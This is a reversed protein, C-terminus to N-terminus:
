EAALAALGSGEPGCASVTSSVAMNELNIAANTDRDHHAGCDPCDWEKVGLVVAPNVVGCESCTKTSAYWRDAVVVTSGYWSAKYELQRRLEYMAQDMVSRALRRNRAMGKVNLNEIGILDFNLVVQTTLKHLADSRINAIQAHLRAVKVKAKRRNASGKKKRSLSRSLRRLRDLKAKHAKPGIVKEGTSLTALASVGLDIGVAGHNKRSHPLEQADISIAAFWRGARCSITVSKIQGQFRVAERMKVWGIRPLKIRKGDVPVAHAGAKAPGNEARFSDHIGKKKFRPYKGKHEFFRKFATGLNKIAQQPACKSVDMAWPFEDRKVANFQRRLAAESPKGGEKYQRQWEALAWNYAFRAVGAAQAFAVRQTANPTLEIKHVLLM